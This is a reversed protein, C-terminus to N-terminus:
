GDLLGVASQGQVLVGNELFSLMAGRQSVAGEGLSTVGNEPM